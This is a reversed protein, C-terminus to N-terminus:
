KSAKLKGQNGSVLRLGRAVHLAPMSSMAANFYHHSMKHVIAKNAQNQQQSETDQTSCDMRSVIRRKDDIRFRVTHEILTVRIFQTM